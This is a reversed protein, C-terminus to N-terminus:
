SLLKPSPPCFYGVRLASHPTRTTVTTHPPPQQDTRTCIVATILVLSQSEAARRPMPGQQQTGHAHCCPAPLPPGLVLTVLCDGTPHHLGAVPLCRDMTQLLEMTYAESSRATSHRHKDAVVSLHCVSEPGVPKLILRCLGFRQPRTVGRTVTCQKTCSRCLPMLQSKARQIMQDRAALRTIEFSRSSTYM